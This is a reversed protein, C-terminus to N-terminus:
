VKQTIEGPVKDIVFDLGVWTRVIVQFSNLTCTDKCFKMCIDILMLLDASHLFLLEQM